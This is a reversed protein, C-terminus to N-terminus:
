IMRNKRLADQEAKYPQLYKLKLIEKEVEVNEDKLEEIKNNALTLKDTFVAEIEKRHNNHEVLLREDAQM